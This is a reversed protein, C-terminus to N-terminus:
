HKVSPHLCYSAISRAAATDKRIREIESWSAMHWRRSDPRLVVLVFQPYNRPYYKPSDDGLPFLLQPYSVKAFANM